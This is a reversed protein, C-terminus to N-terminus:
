KLVELRNKGDETFLLTYINELTVTKEAEPQAASSAVLLGIGLSLGALVIM